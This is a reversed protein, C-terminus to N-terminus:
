LGSLPLIVSLFLSSTGPIGIASSCTRCFTCTGGATKTQGNGDTALLSPLGTHRINVSAGTQLCQGTLWLPSVLVFCCYDCWVGFLQDVTWSARWKRSWLEQIRVNRWGSLTVEPRIKGRFPTPQPPPPYSHEFLWSPLCSFPLYKTLRHFM